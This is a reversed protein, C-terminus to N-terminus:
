TCTHARARELETRGLKAYTDARVPPESTSALKIARRAGSRGPRGRGLSVGEAFLRVGDEASDELALLVGPTWSRAHARDADAGLRGGRAAARARRRRRAQLAEASARTPAADARQRGGRISETIPEIAAWPILLSMSSSLGDISIELTVSLTPEGIPALVGADGEIDVEGRTLEPGGLEGWAM